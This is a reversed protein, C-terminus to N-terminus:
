TMRTLIIDSKRDADTLEMGDDSLALSFTDLEYQGESGKILFSWDRGRLALVTGSPECSFRQEVVTVARKFEYAVTMACRTTHEDIWIFACAEHRIGNSTFTGKWFGSFSSNRRLGVTTLTHLVFRASNEAARKQRPGKNKDKKGDAWDCIAKVLLWDVKADQCATYVGTGEMEGGIAEPEFCKLQERFDLNDVLKEGSLVLGFRVPAGNWHFHANRFCDLLWSSGDPRSGRLVVKAQGDKEGIRQLDYLRLGESVLIDGLKQKEENVGFAIGLMIVAKPHLSAIAKSVAQQSGGSGGHGMASLAHWVRVGNVVGLDRYTKNGISVIPAVAKTHQRFIDIVCRSETETVTVLLVNENM